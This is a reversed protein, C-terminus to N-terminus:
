VGDGHSRVNLKITDGNGLLVPVREPEEPDLAKCVIAM